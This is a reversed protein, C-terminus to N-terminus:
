PSLEKALKTIARAGAGRSSVRGLDAGRAIRRDHPIVFPSVGLARKFDRVGIRGRRPSSLVLMADENSNMIAASRVAGVDSSVVLVRADANPVWGDVVVIRSLMRLSATFAITVNSAPLAETAYICPAGSAHEHSIRRLAEASPDEIVAVSLSASPPSPAYLLQGAQGGCLDAIASSHGFARGLHAVISTAGCGGRVGTVSIVFGNRMADEETARSAAADLLRDRLMHDVREMGHDDPPPPRDRASVFRISPGLFM